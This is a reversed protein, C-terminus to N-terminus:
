VGKHKVVNTKEIAIRYLLLLGYAAGPILWIFYSFCYRSISEWFLQFVFGGILLINIFFHLSNQERKIVQYLAAFLNLGYTIIMGVVAFKFGVNRWNSNRVKLYAESNLPEGNEPYNTEIIRRSGFTPDLWQFKVKDVFFKLSRQGSIYESFIKTIRNWADKNTAKADCNNEEFIEWNSGDQSGPGGVGDVANIGMYIYALTPVADGPEIKAIRDYYIIDGIKNSVFVMGVMMILCIATKCITKKSMHILIYFMGAVMVIAASQHMQVGLTFGLLAIIFYKLKKDECFYIAACVGLASFATSLLTGYLYCTYIIIPYYITLFLATVITTAEDKWIKKVSLSVSLLLIVAGVVNLIRFSIISDGFIKLMLAMTLLTGKNRPYEVFYGANHEENLYGAIVRAEQFLTKQDYKPMTDNFLIWFVSAAFVIGSCILLIKQVTKWSEEGKLLIRKMLHCLMLLMIIGAVALGVYLASGHSQIYREQSFSFIDAECHEFFSMCTLVAMILAFMVNIAYIFLKGWKNEKLMREGKVIYMKM